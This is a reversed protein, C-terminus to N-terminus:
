ARGWLQDTIKENFEDLTHRALNIFAVDSEVQELEFRKYRQTIGRKKSQMKVRVYAGKKLGVWDAHAYENRRKSCELLMKELENLDTHTLKIETSEIIQGYLHMLSRCKATYMMEALFVDMREDQFSDRLMAERICQEIGDELSNFYIVIWGIQPALKVLYSLLEEDSETPEFQEEVEIQTFYNESM